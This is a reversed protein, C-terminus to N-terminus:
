SHEERSKGTQALEIFIFIDTRSRTHGFFVSCTSCLLNEIISAPSSACCIPAGARPVNGAQHILLEKRLVFIECRLVANQFRV